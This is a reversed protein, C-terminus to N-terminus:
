MGAFVYQEEQNSDLSYVSDNTTTAGCHSWKDGKTILSFLNCTGTSYGALRMYMYAVDFKVCRQFQVQMLLFCVVHDVHCSKNINICTTNVAAFISGSTPYKSCTLGFRKYLWLWFSLEVHIKCM